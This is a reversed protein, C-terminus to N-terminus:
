GQWTICQVLVSFHVFFIRSHFLMEWALGAAILCFPTRVGRPCKKTVSTCIGQIKYPCGLPLSFAM